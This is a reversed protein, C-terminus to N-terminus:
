FLRSRIFLTTLVLERGSLPPLLADVHGGRVPPLDNSLLTSSMSSPNTFEATHGFSTAVPSSAYQSPQLWNPSIPPSPLFKPM